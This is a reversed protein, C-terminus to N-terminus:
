PPFCMRQVPFCEPQLPNACGQYSSFQTECATGACTQAEEVPLGFCGAAEVCCYYTDWEDQCGRGQACSTLNGLVCNICIDPQSDAEFCALQCAGDMCDGLCDLTSTECSVGIPAVPGAVTCAADTDADVPASPADIDADTSSADTAPAADSQAGSDRAVRPGSDLTEVGGSDDCAAAAFLGWLAIPLVWARSM